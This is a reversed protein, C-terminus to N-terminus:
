KYFVDVNNINSDSSSDCYEILIKKIKESLIQNNCRLNLDELADFGNNEYFRKVFINEVEKTSYINNNGITNKVKIKNLVKGNFLYKRM